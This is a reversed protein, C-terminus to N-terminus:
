DIFEKIRKVLKSVVRLRESCKVIEAKLKPLIKALANRFKPGQYGADALLAILSPFLEKMEKLLLIGGDRDQIDAPHIIALM